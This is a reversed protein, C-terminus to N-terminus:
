AAAPRLPLPQRPNPATVADRRTPPPDGAGHSPFPARYLLTLAEESTGLRSLPLVPREVPWTCLWLGDQRRRLVLRRARLRRQLRAWTGAQAFDAALARRITAIADEPGGGAVRVWNDLARRIVDAVGMDDQRARDMAARWLPDPIRLTM